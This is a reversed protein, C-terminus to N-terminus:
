VTMSVPYQFSTQMALMVDDDMGFTGNVLVSIGLAGVSRDQSVAQGGQEELRTNLEGVSAASM